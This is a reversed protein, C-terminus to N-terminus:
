RKDQREPGIVSDDIAGGNGAVSIDEENISLRVGERLIIFGDIIFGDGFRGVARSM